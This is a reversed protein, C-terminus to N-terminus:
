NGLQKLQEARNAKQAAKHSSPMKYGMRMLEEDVGGQVYEMYGKLIALREELSKGKYFKEMRKVANIGQIDNAQMWAHIQKHADKPMKILNESRDGFFWGEDRIMRTLKKAQAETLDVYASSKDILSNWHHIEDGKKVGLAVKNTKHDYAIFVDEGTALTQYKTMKVRKPGRTGRSWQGVFRVNLPNKKDRHLAINEGTVDDIWFNEGALYRKRIDDVDWGEQRAKKTLAKFEKRTLKFGEGQNALEARRGLNAKDIRPPTDGKKIMLPKAPNQINDIPNIRLGDPTVALPSPALQDAIKLTKSLKGAQSLVKGAGLELVAGTAIEGTTRAVDPDVWPQGSEHRPLNGLDKKTIPNQLDAGTAWMEAGRGGRRTLDEVGMLVTGLLAETSGTRSPDTAAYKLDETIWNYAQGVNKIGGGISRMLAGRANDEQSLNILKQVNSETGIRLNTGLPVYQEEPSKILTKLNQKAQNYLDVSPQFPNAFAPSKVPIQKDENEEDTNAPNIQVDSLTYSM